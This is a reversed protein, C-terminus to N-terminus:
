AKRRILDYIGYSGKIIVYMCFWVMAVLSVGMIAIFPAIRLIEGM